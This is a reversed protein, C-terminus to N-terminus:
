QSRALSAGTFHDEKLISYAGLVAGARQSILAAQAELEAHDESEQAEGAAAAATAVTAVRIPVAACCRDSSGRGDAAGFM